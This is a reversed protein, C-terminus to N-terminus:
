WAPSRQGRAPGLRPSSGPHDRGPSANDKASAWV